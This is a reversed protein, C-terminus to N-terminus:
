ALWRWDRLLIDVGPVGNYSDLRSNYAIQIRRGQGTLPFAEALRWAKVQLSINAAEDCLTLRAHVNRSGFHCINKILLPPSIFLPEPNKIGFPQMLELEQLHLASSAIDFGAEADYHLSPLIPDPGVVESIKRFFAERFATLEDPALSLGAAQRHGGYRVLHESCAAITEHLNLERISRGSGKLFEGDNCLVIAPKYFEEVLRSAVIGIIGGHWHPGYLVLGPSHRQEEAMRVAEKFIEDEQKRRQLNLQDLKEALPLAAAIDEALLLDLASGAHELRGAANLRPALSFGIQGASVPAVTGFGSIEKLAAIGPRKGENLLLMGNKVLIRNQGTLPVLDAVTGLAVLDLVSRIDQGSSSEAELLKHVQAMLFFAMGVGALSPYPSGPLTPNCIANAPPLEAAPLHHDSVVVDLGLERALRIPELDSIGCDVTLILNIGQEALWRVGNCNLGYGDVSRHPIFASAEFGHWALITKVLAASTVGDVDYDGWVALKKGSHLAAAILAAADEVGPWCVPPILSRLGPNLYEVIEQEQYLGRLCLMDLLWPSIDLKGALGAGPLAADDKPRPLWKKRSSLM